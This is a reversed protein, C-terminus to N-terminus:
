QSIGQLIRYVISIEMYPILLVRDDENLDVTGTREKLSYWGIKDAASYLLNHAEWEVIYGAIIFTQIM